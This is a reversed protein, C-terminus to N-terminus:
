TAWFLIEKFFRDFATGRIVDYSQSGIHGPWDIKALLQVFSAGYATRFKLTIRGATWCGTWFFFEHPLQVVGRCQRPNVLPTFRRGFITSRRFHGFGIRVKTPWRINEQVIKPCAMLWPLNWANNWGHPIISCLELFSIANHTERQVDTVCAHMSCNIFTILLSLYKSLKHVRFCKPYKKSLM